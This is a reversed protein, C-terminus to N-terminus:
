LESEIVQRVTEYTPRREIQVGNVYVDPTGPVGMETGLDVDSEIVSTYRREEAATRVVAGDVGVLDGLALFLDLSYRSQNEYLERSYEFFAADGSLDQVARAANAAPRSWENVPIPFDRHRYLVTGPDVYDTKLDPLVNLSFDRCHSCAFDEFVTVTVDAASDGITPPPLSEGATTTPPGGASTRRDTTVDATAPGDSGTSGTTPGTSPTTSALPQNSASTPAPFQDPEPTDTEQGASFCGAVLSAGLLGFFGRRKM